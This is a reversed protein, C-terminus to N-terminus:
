VMPVEVPARDCLLLVSRTWANLMASSLLWLAGSVPRENLLACEYLWRTKM